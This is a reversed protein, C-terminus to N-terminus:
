RITREQVRGIGAQVSRGPGPGAGPPPVGLLPGLGFRTHDLRLAERDLLTPKLAAMSAALGCHESRM